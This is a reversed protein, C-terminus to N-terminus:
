KIEGIFRGSKFDFWPERCERCAAQEGNQWPGQGAHPEFLQAILPRFSLADRAFTALHLGCYKCWLTQGKYAVVPNDNGPVRKFGGM